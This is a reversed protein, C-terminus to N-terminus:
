QAAEQGIKRPKTGDHPYPRLNEPDVKKRWDACDKRLKQLEGGEVKFLPISEPATATKGSDDGSEEPKPFDPEGFILRGLRILRVGEKDRKHEYVDYECRIRGCRHGRHAGVVPNLAFRELASFFLGLQAPNVAALTMRHRIRIGAPIAEYGPLPMGIPNDTGLQEMMESKADKLEAEKKTREDEWKKVQGPPVKEGDANKNKASGIKVRLAKIERELVARQHDLRAFEGVSDMDEVVEHLVASTNEHARAGGIVGDGKELVVREDDAIAHAIHLKSGIMGGIKGNRGAAEGAGFLAVLPNGEIYDHRINPDCQDNGSGKVGGVSLLLWDAYKVKGTPFIEVAERAAARRLMGRIASAAIFPKGGIRPLKQLGEDPGYKVKCDIPSNSYPEVTTIHGHLELNHRDDPQKESM